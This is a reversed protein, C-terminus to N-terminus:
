VDQCEREHAMVLLRPNARKLEHNGGCHDAHAHTNVVAHLDSALLGIQRLSPFIACAPSTAVGSDILLPQEGILLYVSVTRGAFPVDIQYINPLIEM